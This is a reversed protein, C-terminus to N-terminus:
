EINRDSDAALLRMVEQAAKTAEIRTAAEALDADGNEAADVISRLNEISETSREDSRKPHTLGLSRWQWVRAHLTALMSTLTESKSGEHLVEYFRTKRDLVQEADGSDYATVVADFEKRLRARGPDDSQEVFIRAALGYLVARIRYLDEAEEPTLARVVPGKNPIVEILHEAELQRLAERIVTRSVDMIEILERETLRKGPPLEGSVIAARLGELVKQRLSAATKQVKSLVPQSM